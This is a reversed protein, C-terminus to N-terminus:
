LQRTMMSPRKDNRIGAFSAHRLMDGNTWEIFSAEVVLAPTVWRLSDAPTALM